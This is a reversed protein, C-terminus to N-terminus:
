TVANVIHFNDTIRLRLKDTITPVIQKFFGGIAERFEKATQFYCNNRVEENLVKWLREIPNLNPSYPPLFHLTFGQENATRQFVEDKHYGANDLILHVRPADPYHMKIEKLFTIMTEGNITEYHNNIIRMTSLQLAGVINIRTRSATTPLTQEKGKRIWGYSAKTQMSPHVGDMFLIPENDPTEAKLKEYDAIFGEQRKGDAKAPISKPKKYVFRHQKLWCTMGAVTYKIGYTTMVYHCIASVNMYCRSEIHAILEERQQHNLKGESGGNTPALKEEKEYEALHRRITDRHLRLAQAIRDISWNESRLLVAKIRDCIYKDREIDHRRELAEKEEETLNLKM